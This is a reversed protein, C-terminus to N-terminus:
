TRYLPGCIYHPAAGDSVGGVGGGDRGFFGPSLYCIMECNVRNGLTVYYLNDSTPSYSM